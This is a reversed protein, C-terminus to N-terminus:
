VSVHRFLFSVISLLINREYQETIDYHQYYFSHGFVIKTLLM